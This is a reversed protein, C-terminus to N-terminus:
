AERTKLEARVKKMVYLYSVGTFVGAGVWAAPDCFCALAYSHVRIAIMAVGLRAFLEVVGGMMPLFGYGCGQMANRFIFIVCLPIYFLVCILIYTRAWPMMATVDVDGSFFLGLSPGLALYVIVAAALSYIVEIIVACRVGQSIRKANGKGYNQGAFVAMTQGMAIMGQNALNHIKGAATYAAVAESGFLNIASQMIMTGSSTIAFQLSMPIGVALQYRCDEASFAWHKKQPRLAPVKWYIYILCLVASIAQSLDTAWAAGAVGMDFQIIFVLDLVVNLCASLVLFFLPANSNGVARLYSSFLNYFINATMGLSIIVIYTYADQFINDPTNMAHLLPNMVAVCFVTLIVSVGVSLFIGNTVSRKVADTQGAGFRQSTLVSFGASFGQAFGNLLFMITGTSGVAALADAGVYRGVIITDAMNYLQQFMNGILLPLTFMLLVPLIRGKTM